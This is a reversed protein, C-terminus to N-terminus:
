EGLELTRPREHAIKEIMAWAMPDEPEGNRRAELIAQAYEIIREPASTM